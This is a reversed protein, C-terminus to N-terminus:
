LGQVQKTSANLFVPEKLCPDRVVVQSKTLPLWAVVGGGGGGGVM